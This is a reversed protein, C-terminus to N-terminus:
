IFHKFKQRLSNLYKVDERWDGPLLEGLRCYSKLWPWVAESLEGIMREVLCQDMWDMASPDDTCSQRLFEILAPTSLTKGDITRSPHPIIDPMFSLWKTIPPVPIWGVGWCIWGALMVRNSSGTLLSRYFLFTTTLLRQKLRGFKVWPGGTDIMRQYSAALLLFRLSDETTLQNILCLQQPDTLMAGGSNNDAITTHIRRMSSQTEDSSNSYNGSKAASVWEATAPAKCRECGCEFFKIEELRRRRYATDAILDLESLYSCSLM